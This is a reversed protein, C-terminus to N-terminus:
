KNEKPGADVIQHKRYTTAFLSDHWEDELRDYAEHQENPQFPVNRAADLLGLAIGYHRIARKTLKDGACEFEKAATAFENKAMQTLRTAFKNGDM